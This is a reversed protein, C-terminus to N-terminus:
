SLTRPVTYPTQLLWRQITGSQSLHPITTTPNSVFRIVQSIRGGSLDDFPSHSIIRLDVLNPMNELAEALKVLVFRIANGNGGERELEVYFSKVM